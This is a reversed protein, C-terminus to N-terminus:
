SAMDGDIQQLVVQKWRKFDISTLHVKSYSAEEALELLRAVETTPGIRARAEDVTVTAPPVHWRAALARQVAQRASNFFAEANGRAAAQEMDTLLPATQLAAKQERAATSERALRERRRMWFGASFFALTLLAPAAVYPAEFYHPMLSGLRAGTEAHDPRLSNGNETDAALKASAASQGAVVPTSMVPNASNTPSVSVSLPSTRAEVYHRTTPDFWSFTLAPLSQAGPETAIVPQEFTKEGRYGIQDDAKFVATPAYTKWHEVDHLMSSSVRDFSGSGAIHLRLTVPDGAAAKDDSVDSSVSFKGVAGAFDAPRGEAPLAQVTFTAPSSAITVDRETSAGFFSQLSPDNFLDQLDSQGFFGSDLRAPSPIRVTLPTEMTLSLKGPKVAALASHWTFVTFPKGDIVEATREPQASLKDLTFADGNLTPQGNLSAVVGDRTGVQIDVPITEGVYLDHKSLRLRVFASGSSGSQAPSGGPAAAAAQPLSGAFPNSTSAAGNGQKVTLVVPAAGPNESPITFIGVRRPIVQYTVSTTSHSVGNISEIRQSQSVAVFELDAVMPPTISAADEGSASITLRAAQNLGIATPEINQTVAAQAASGLAAAAVAWVIFALGRKITTNV